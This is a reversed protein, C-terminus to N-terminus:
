IAISTIYIFVIISSKLDCACDCSDVHVSNSWCLLLIIIIVIINYELGKLKQSSSMYYSRATSSDIHLSIAGDDVLYDLLMIVAYAILDAHESRILVM